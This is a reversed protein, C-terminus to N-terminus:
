KGPDKGTSGAVCPTSQPNAPPFSGAPVTHLWRVLETHGPVGEWTPAGSTGQTSCFGTPGPCHALTLFLHWWVEHMTLPVGVQRADICTVEAKTYTLKDPGPMPVGACGSSIARCGFGPLCAEDGIRFTLTSAQGFPVETITVVGTMKAAIIAMAERAPAAIRSDASWTITNGAFRRSGRGFIGAPVDPPFSQHYDYFASTAEASLCPSPTPTPTVNPSAPRDQASCSSALAAVLVVPITPKRM